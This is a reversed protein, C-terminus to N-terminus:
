SSRVYNISLNSEGRRPPYNLHCGTSMHLSSSSSACSLDPIAM